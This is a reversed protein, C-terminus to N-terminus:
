CTQCTQYPRLDAVAHGIPQNIAFALLAAVATWALPSVSRADLSRRALWWGVALLAVFLVPGYKAYTELVGHLWPTDRAFANIGRFLSQDGSSDGTLCGRRDVCM